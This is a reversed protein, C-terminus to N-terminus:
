KLCIDIKGNPFVMKNLHIFVHQNIYFEMEKSFFHFNENIFKTKNYSRFTRIKADYQNEIFSYLEQFRSFVESKNKLLYIRTEKSFDDIFIVFYKYGNFSEIPAPRWV